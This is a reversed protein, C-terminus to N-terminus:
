MKDGVVCYLSNPSTECDILGRALENTKVVCKGTLSSIFDNYDVYLHLDETPDSRLPYVCRLRVDVNSPFIAMEKGAPVNITEVPLVTNIEVYRSVPISYRVNDFDMRVGKVPVIDATGRVTESLEYHRIPKTYVADVNELHYPEGYLTVSDPVTEIDSLLTYQQRFDLSTVAKVPVKKHNEYPFHFFLTDTLFYEVTVDDGFFFHAYEQLDPQTVYFLEGGMNKMASPQFVVDIDFKRNHLRSSLVKYGRARCRAVVEFKDSSVNAHEDINCHAVITASINNNYKLSLNHILWISFALLLALLFVAFDRGNIHFIELFRHYLTGM